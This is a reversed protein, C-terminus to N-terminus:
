QTYRIRKTKRILEPPYSTVKTQGNHQSLLYVQCYQNEYLDFFTLSVSGESKQSTALLLTDGQPLIGGGYAEEYEESFFNVTQINYAIGAGVNKIIYIRADEGLSCVGFSVIAERAQGKAKQLLDEECNEGITYHELFVKMDLVPLVELRERHYDIKYSRQIVLITTSVTAIGAIAAGLVAGWFSGASSNWEDFSIDNARVTFCYKAFWIILIILFAVAFLIGIGIKIHKNREEREVKTPQKYHITPGYAHQELSKAGRAFTNQLANFVIYLKEIIPRRIHYNFWYKLKGSKDMYYSVRAMIHCRMSLHIARVM